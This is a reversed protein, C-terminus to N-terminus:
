EQKKKSYYVCRHINGRYEIEDTKEMKAMGVREMVRISSVNEEFAGAVVERYGLSFLTEIAIALAQTMYGHCQFQPHIVYGLEIIGNEAEVDNLFGILSNNLCIGRVFHKEDLSLAMLRRFLPSADPKRNFDPLMYTQKICKNTLIDLMINEDDPTFPRLHLM